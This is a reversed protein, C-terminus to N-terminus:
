KKAAEKLENVRFHIARFIQSLQFVRRKEGKSDTLFLRAPAKFVKGDKEQAERNALTRADILGFTELLFRKNISRIPLSYGKQRLIEDLIGQIDERLQDHTKILKCIASISRTENEYTELASQKKAKLLAADAQREAKRSAKLYIELEASTLKSIDTITAKQGKTTSKM